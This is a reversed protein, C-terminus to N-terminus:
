ICVGGPSQPPPTRQYAPHGSMYADVCLDYARNLIAFSSSESPKPYNGGVIRRQTDADTIEKLNFSKGIIEKGRDLYGGPICRIAIKEIVNEKTSEQRLPLGNIYAAGAVEQSVIQSLRVAATLRPNRRVTYRDNLSYVGPSDWDLVGPTVNVPKDASGDALNLISGAVHVYHDVQVRKFDSVDNVKDDHSWENFSELDKYAM